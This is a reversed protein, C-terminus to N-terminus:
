QFHAKLYHEYVRIKKSMDQMLADEERYVGTEILRDRNEKLRQVFAAIDPLAGSAHVDLTTGSSHTTTTTASDRPFRLSTTTTSAFGGFDSSDRVGGDIGGASGWREDAAAATSDSPASVYPYNGGESSAFSIDATRQQQQMEEHMFLHHDRRSDEQGGRHPSRHPSSHSRRMAATHSSLTSLSVADDHEGEADSTDRDVTEDHHRTFTQPVEVVSRVYLRRGDDAHASSPNDHDDHRSQVRQAERFPSLEGFLVEGVSGTVRLPSVSRQQLETPNHHLETSTAAMRRSADHVEAYRVTTGVLGHNNAMALQERQQKRARKKRAHSAERHRRAADDQSEKQLQEVLNRLASIEGNATSRQQSHQSPTANQSHSAAYSRTLYGSPSLDATSLMMPTADNGGANWQQQLRLLDDHRAVAALRRQEEALAREKQHYVSSMLESYQLSVTRLQEKYLHCAAVLEEKEAALKAADDTKREVTSQLERITSAMSESRQRLEAITASESTERSQLRGVLRQLTDYEQQLVVYRQQTQQAVLNREKMQSAISDHKLFQEDMARRHRGELERYRQEHETALQLRRTEFAEERAELNSIRKALVKGASNLRKAMVELERRLSDVEELRDVDKQAFVIELEKYRRDLETAHAAEFVRKQEAKWVELDFAAAYEETARVNSQEPQGVAGDGSAVAASEPEM